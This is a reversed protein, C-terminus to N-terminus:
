LGPRPAVLDCFVPPAVGNATEYCRGQLGDLDGRNVPENNNGRSVKQRSAHGIDFRCCLASQHPRSGIQMNRKPAQNSCTDRMRAIDFQM